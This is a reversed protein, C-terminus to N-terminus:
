LNANPAKGTGECPSCPRRLEGLERSWGYAQVGDGGCTSCKGTSQEWAITEAELETHSVYCEHEQGRWAPKGKNKGRSKVFEERLAVILGDPIRRWGCVTHTDPLNLKRRSIMGIVDPRPTKPAAQEFLNAM